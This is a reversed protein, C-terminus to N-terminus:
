QLLGDRLDRLERLVGRADGEKELVNSLAQAYQLRMTHDFTATREDLHEVSVELGVIRSEVDNADTVYEVSQDGGYNAARAADVFEILQGWTLGDLDVSLKISM